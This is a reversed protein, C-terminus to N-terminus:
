VVFMLLRDIRLFFPSISLVSKIWLFPLKSFVLNQHCRKFAFLSRCLACSHGCRPDAQQNRFKVTFWEKSTDGRM